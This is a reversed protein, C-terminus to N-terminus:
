SNEANKERQSIRGLVTTVPVSGGKRVRADMLADSPLEGLVGLERGELRGRDDSYGRAGTRAGVRRKGNKSGARGGVIPGARAFM